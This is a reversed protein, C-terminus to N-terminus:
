EGRYAKLKAVAAEFLVLAEAVMAAQEEPKSDAYTREIRAMSCSFKILGCNAASSKLFHATDTVKKADADRLDSIRIQVNQLFVETVKRVTQEGLEDEMRALCTPDLDPRSDLDCSLADDPEPPKTAPAKGEIRLHLWRELVRVLAPPEVPKSLYDSMGAALCLEKDGAMAHATLAIIPVHANHGEQARIHCTALMGDMEPMSVDMLILDYNKAKAKEIAELGNTAEDYAFGLKQLYRGAVMRNVENDEVLLLTKDAAIDALSVKDSLLENQTPIDAVSPIELPLMFWFKSGKGPQSEVGLEGKMMLVLRRCIALGLGSGGFRRTFSRDVQSFEKFLKTQDEATIGIGTDVVEFRALIAPKGDQMQEMMTSARVTISGANTFKSANSVLNLLIQRVRGEDGRVWEPFSPAIDIDVTVPKTGVLSRGLGVVEDILGKIDFVEPFIDVRGAEIKAFDLIDNIIGHLAQSSTIAIGLLHKQEDSLPQEAVLKLVGLIGNIPTRIEHSMTALFNTKVASGHEAMQKAEILEEQVKRIGSIDTFLSVFHTLTGDPTIVPSMHWESWFPEGNKRYLILSFTKNEHLTIARRYGAIADQDTNYGFLFESSMDGVTEYDYGTLDTFATNLFVVPRRPARMDRILVGVRTSELAAAFLANVKEAARARDVNKKYRRLTMSLAFIFAFGCLLVLSELTLRLTDNTRISAFIAHIEDNHTQEVDSAFDEAAHRLQKLVPAIRMVDQASYMDGRPLLGRIRDVSDGISNLAALSAQHEAIEVPDRTLVRMIQGRAQEIDQLLQQTDQQSAGAHVTPCLDDVRKEMTDAMRPIPDNEIENYVRRGDMKSVEVLLFLAVLAVLFAVPLLILRKESLAWFPTKRDKVKAEFSSKTRNDM